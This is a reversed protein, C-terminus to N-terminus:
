STVYNFNTAWNEYWSITDGNNNDNYVIKNISNNYIITASNISGYSVSVNQAFTVYKMTQSLGQYQLVSNNEFICDTLSSDSISVSYIGCSSGLQNSKVESFSGGLYCSDIRASVGNLSNSSITNTNLSIFNGSISASAGFMNNNNIQGGDSLQNGQIFGQNSITNRNIEGGSGLNNNYIGATLNLVNNGISGFNITNGDIKSGSLLQNNVIRSNTDLNNNSISTRSESNGISSPASTENYSIGGQDSGSTNSLFNNQINTYTLINYQFVTNTFSNGYMQIDTLDNNAFQIGNFVNNYINTNNSFVNNSIYTNIVRSSSVSSQNFRSNQCGMYGSSTNGSFGGGNITNGSIYLGQEASNSNISGNYTTNGQIQSQYLDNQSIQGFGGMTNQYIQASWNSAANYSISVNGSLENNYISGQFYPNIIRANGSLINNYIGAATNVNEIYSNKYVINGFCGYYGYNLSYDTSSGWQFKFINSYPKLPPYNIVSEGEYIKNGLSDERYTIIDKDLDYIVLDPTSNYFSPSESSTYVQWDSPSLVYGNPFGYSGSVDSGISGSINEWIQGGWRVFTGSNYNPQIISGSNSITANTGSWQGTVSTSGAWNGGTWVIMQQGYYQGTAGTDSQITEGNYFYGQGSFNTLQANVILNWIGWYKDSKDYQVTYFLGTSYLQFQNSSVAEMIVPMSSLSYVYGQLSDTIKYKTGPVLASDNRAIILDSRTIDVIGGGGSADAWIPGTADRTLVQDVNGEAGTYDRIQTLAPLSITKNFTILNTMSNLEVFTTGVLGLSMTAFSPSATIFTGTDGFFIQGYPLGPNTILVGGYVELAQTPTSTGIGVNTNYPGSTGTYVNGSKFYGAPGNAEIQLGNPFTITSISTSSDILRMSGDVDLKASPSTTGIGVNIGNDFIISDILTGATSSQKLVYNTTTALASLVTAGNIKM